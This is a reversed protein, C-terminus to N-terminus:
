QNLWTVYSPGTTYIMLKTESEEQQMRGSKENDEQKMQLGVNDCLDSEKRNIDGEVWGTQYRTYLSRSM